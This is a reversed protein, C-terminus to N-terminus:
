QQPHPALYEIAQGSPVDVRGSPRGDIEVAYRGAPVDLAPGNVSGHHIKGDAGIARFRLEVTGRLARSLAQAGRADVYSGKGREAWQAFTASLKQDNIEFGVIDVRVAVGDEVLAAIAAAPDGACTEEGDTLIVIRNNGEAGAFDTAAARLADAIPTRAQNRPRVERLAALVQEPNGLPSLLETECAGPSVGFVRLGVAMNRGDAAQVLESLAKRAIRYRAQGGDDRLMSGSNDLLVLLNEGRSKQADRSTQALDLVVRLSGPAPPEGPGTEAWLRYTKSRRMRQVARAFGDVFDAQSDVYHYLGGSSAAWDEMLDRQRAPVAAAAGSSPIALAAVIPRAAALAPWLNLSRRTAADTILIVGRAGDVGELLRAATALTAEADSSEARGKYNSLRRLLIEPEGSLDGGILDGGFPLFGIRDNRVDAGQAIDRLARQLSQRYPATSGSTDFAVIISRRPEEVKVYYRGPMPLHAHWSVETSKAPRRESASVPLLAIDRGDTALVQARVGGRGGTDLRLTLDTHARDIDLVFWDANRTREVSSHIWQGTALALASDRSAGGRVAATTPLTPAVSREYAAASSFEGWEGLISLPQGAGSAEWIRIRDALRLDPRKATSSVELKVYRAWTAAPLDFRAPAGPATTAPPTWRAIEQWPGLPTQVSTSVIIDAVDDTRRPDAAPTELTWDLATIRAARRHHFGIVITAKSANRLVNAKRDGGLLLDAEWAPDIQGPPQMWVVHGGVGPDALNFPAQGHPRYGPAAIAKFEGLRIPSEPKGEFTWASDGILRLARAKIVQDFVIAQEAAQPELSGSYVESFLTGDLSAEIRFNRLSQSDGPAIRPNMVLGVLPVPENGALDFTFRAQGASSEFSFLTESSALGDILAEPQRTGKAKGKHLPKASLDTLTGGLARAAVNL